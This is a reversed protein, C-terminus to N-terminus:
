KKIEVTIQKTAFFSNDKEVIKDYECELIINGNEDAIGYKKDKELRFYGGRFNILSYVRELIVDSKLNIVGCKGQEDVIKLYSSSIFTLHAQIPEIVYSGKKDIVAEKMRGKFGVVAYGYENFSTATYFSPTIEWEMNHNLYGYNRSKLDVALLLGNEFGEIPFIENSILKGRTDYIYHHNEHKENNTSLYFYKDNIQYSSSYKEGEQLNLQKETQRLFVLHKSNEEEIILLLGEYYHRSINLKETLRNGDSSVVWSKGTLKSTIVEM